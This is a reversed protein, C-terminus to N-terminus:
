KSWRVQLNWVTALVLLYLIQYIMLSAFICVSCPARVSTAFFPLGLQAGGAALGQVWIATMLPTGILTGITKTLFVISFDRGSAHDEKASVIPSKILSLIFVAAATGLAYIV